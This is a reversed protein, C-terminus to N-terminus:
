LAEIWYHPAGDKRSVYCGKTVDYPLSCTEPASDRLDARRLACLLCRRNRWSPAEVPIIETGTFPVATLRVRTWDDRTLVGQNQDKSLTFTM